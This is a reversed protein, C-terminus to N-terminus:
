SAAATGSLHRAYDLVASAQRVSAPLPSPDISYRAMDIQAQEFSPQVDFARALAPGLEEVQKIVQGLRWHAYTNEGQWDVQGFNLFICPRPQIIFEYVQSSVDGIYVDAARTYSMDISRRSGRDISINPAAGHIQPGRRLKVHPAVIFDWEPLRAMEELLEPGAKFWSSLQQHFHANYLALPRPGKPLPAPPSLELKANGVVKIKDEPLLRRELLATKHKAGNVLVLDFLAHKRNYSGERDGAGHKLLILKSRFGRFRRLYASTTETTVVLPYSGILRHNLHLTLRRDPPTFLSDRRINPGWIRRLVLTGNPDYSRVLNLGAPSSGLVTVEVGPERALRLALPLWHLYQHAQSIALFAVRLTM